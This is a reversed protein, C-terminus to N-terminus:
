LSLSIYSVSICSISVYSISISVYICIYVSMDLLREKGKRCVSKCVFETDLSLRWIQGEDGPM